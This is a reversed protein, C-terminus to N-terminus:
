DDLRKKAIIALDAIQGTTQKAMNAAKTSTVIQFIEELDKDRSHLLPMITIEFNDHLSDFTVVLIISDSITRHEM